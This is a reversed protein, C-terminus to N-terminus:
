PSGPARQSQEPSQALGCLEVVSRVASCELVPLQKPVDSELLLVKRARAAFLGQYYYQDATGGRGAWDDVEFRNILGRSRMAAMHKLWLTAYRESVRRAAQSPPCEGCREPAVPKLPRDMREIAFRGDIDQGWDYSAERLVM